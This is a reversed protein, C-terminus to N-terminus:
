SRTGTNFAINSKFGFGKRAFGAVNKSNITRFSIKENMKINSDMIKLDYSGDKKRPGVAVVLGIHDYASSKFQQIFADGPQPPNNAKGISKDILKAKAAKSTLNPGTYGTVARVFEGCQGGSAGAVLKRNGVTMSTVNADPAILSKTAQKTDGGVSSFSVGQNALFNAMSSGAAELKASASWYSEEYGLEEYARKMEFLSGAKAPGSSVPGEDNGTPITPTSTFDAGILKEYLAPGLQSKYFQLSANQATERIGQIKAMNLEESNSISPFLKDYAASESDTFAAGSVSNRYAFISASIKTAIRALEPNTTAGVKQRIQEDTGSFIGTDGNLRVFEKLDAEIIDLESLLDERGNQRTNEAALAGDKATAIIHDRAGEYDGDAIYKEFTQRAQKLRSGALRGIAEDFAKELIAVNESDDYGSDGPGEGDFYTLQGTAPDYSGITRGYLDKEPILAFKGSGATAAQEKFISSMAIADEATLEGTQLRDMIEPDISSLDYKEALGLLLNIGQTRKAEAELRLTEAQELDMQYGELMYGLAQTNEDARGKIVDNLSMIQFELLKKDNNRIASQQAPTLGQIEDASLNRDYLQMLLKNKQDQFQQLQTAKSQLQGFAALFASQSGAGGPAMSSSTMTAGSTMPAPGAQAPTLSPSTPAPVQSPVPSAPAPGAVPPPAGELTYGQGFYQQAEQSGVDVAVRDGTNQNILTARKPTVSVPAPEQSPYTTTITSDAGM